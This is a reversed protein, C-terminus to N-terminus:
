ESKEARKLQFSDTILILKLKMVGNDHYLEFDEVETLKQGDIQITYPGCLTNGIVEIKQTM